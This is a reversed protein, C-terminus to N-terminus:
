GKRVGQQQLIEIPGSFWGQDLKHLMLKSSIGASVPVSDILVSIQDIIDSQNPFSHHDGRLAEQNRDGKRSSTGTPSHQWERIPQPDFNADNTAPLSRAARETARPSHPAPPPSSLSQTAASGTLSVRRECVSYLTCATCPVRADREATQWEREQRVHVSSLPDKQYSAPM